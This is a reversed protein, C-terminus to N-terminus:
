GQNEMPQPARNDLWATLSKEEDQGAAIGHQIRVMLDTFADGPHRALWDHAFKETTQRALAREQEDSLALAPQGSLLPRADPQSLAQWVYRQEASDAWTGGYWFLQSIPGLWRTLLAETCAPFLYSAVRPDYFRLLAKHHRGFSAALLSRLQQMLQGPPYRTTLLLGTFEAPKTRLAEVMQGNVSLSFLIPGQDRQPAFPTDDLLAVPNPDPELKYIDALQVTSTEALWYLTGETYPLVSHQTLSM